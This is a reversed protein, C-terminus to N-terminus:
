CELCALKEPSAALWLTCLVYSVLRWYQYKCSDSPLHYLYHGMDHTRLNQSLFFPFPFPFADM